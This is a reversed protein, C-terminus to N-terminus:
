SANPLVLSAICRSRSSRIFPMLDYRSFSRLRVAGTGDVGLDASAVVVLYTGTVPAIV